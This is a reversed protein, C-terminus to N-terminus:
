LGLLARAGAAIEPPKQDRFFEIRGDLAQRTMEPQSDAWFHGEAMHRVFKACGEDLDMGYNMMLEYMTKRHKDAGAPEGAGASAEFISTKLMGPLISSVHIPANVLQLELFLCESFSQVAHKSM